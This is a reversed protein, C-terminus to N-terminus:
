GRHETGQRISQIAERQAEFLHDMGRSALELFQPVTERPFPRGEAGGQIEVVQGTDTMAVNFDLQARVDEEYSLDVLPSDGVMGVSIAAVACNLPVEQLVRNKVLILLAQYLAVYAGTIAATRTGGDAQVVDCDLIVTREGLAKRDTVARLCRGILRQIEQSRGRAQGTGSERPTRVGTARPLMSYEATVWGEGMGRLFAPVREEVTAACLVRTRALQILASGEAFSQYGPLITAKRPEDWRRGDLRRTDTEIRV